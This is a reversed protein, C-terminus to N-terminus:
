EINQVQERMQEILVKLEVSAQTTRTDISKSGLTNAERNLEQMLFDLRRGVQGGKELVRRVETIHADLRDLEEAIDAKQVLVAIEQEVRDADVHELINALRGQLRAQQDELIAPMISHVTAIQADMLDLRQILLAKLQAGERARAELLQSLTEALQSLACDRLKGSDLERGRIVGPVLLLTAPSVPAPQDMQQGLRQCVSMLRTMLNEDVDVALDGASQAFRLIVDVKGRSLQKRCQERVVWELERFGEPLRPSVELYRHNVSRIEWVLTGADLAQETHAFATMSNIMDDQERRGVLAALCVRQM